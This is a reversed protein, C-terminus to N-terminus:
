AKKVFESKLSMAGFGPIKCDINHDGDAILRINKVKTGKKLSNTAGKVKLDKIVTVADGDQLVNGNADKIEDAYIMYEAASNVIPELTSLGGGILVNGEGAIFMQRIDHGADIVTGDSLKKKQSPINQLNPENSSFRGTGAGLQNFSAHLRNDKEIVCKPIKDIYTNILKLIGREELILKALPLNVKELIPEGTGRPSKKDIIGIDLIDYLLIALQTASTLEPPDKLQENKSKLFRLKGNKDLAQLGTKKDIAPPAYNADETLRWKAIKDKYKDVEKNIEAEILDLKKHYKISLRKAYEKDICVGTLEMEAAIIVIPMEINMFLNFLKENEPKSFQTVQWEYLKLTMFADTAAYLAFISPDVIAYEINKFLHDISYKEQSPDIKQIYQEKLGAKQAGPLNSTAENENLIRAAILTDWYIDLEINCTCKIVEYDFKGNHMIIKTNSLRAFQEKIDQETLQWDLREGTDKNIHNIPIYPQKAVIM